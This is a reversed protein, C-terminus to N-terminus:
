RLSQIQIGLLVNLITRLAFIDLVTNNHNVTEKFNWVLYHKV